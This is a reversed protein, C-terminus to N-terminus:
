SKEEVILFRWVLLESAKDDQRLAQGPVEPFSRIKADFMVILRHAV